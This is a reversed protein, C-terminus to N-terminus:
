KKYAFIFRERQCFDKVVEIRTFDDSMNQIIDNKQGIGIELALLGNKLLHKKAHDIIYHIDSLGNQKSVLADKPDFEKVEQEAFCWEDNTLYPPNSIIVGYSCKLVDSCWDFNQLEINKVKHFDINERALSLANISKDMGYGNCNKIELCLTIIIAGSGTGFDLIKGNYETTIREKILETFYETEPRPILARKDCKLEYGAFNVKGLIHQLPIRKGRDVICKRIKNLDEKELFNGFDLYLELKGKQTVHSIIWEVDCKSNPVGKKNLYETSRNIIDLLTLHESM